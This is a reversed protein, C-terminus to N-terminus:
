VDRRVTRGDVMELRNDRDGACQHHQLPNGFDHPADDTEPGADPRATELIDGLDIHDLLLQRMALIDIRGLALRRYFPRLMNIFGRALATHAPIKM